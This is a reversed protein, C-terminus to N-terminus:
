PRRWRWSRCASATNVQWPAALPRQALPLLAAPPPPRTFLYANNLTTNATQFTTFASKLTAYASLKATYSSQQTSIPTLAAKEATPMSYIISSLDLGSGIGLTSISAM